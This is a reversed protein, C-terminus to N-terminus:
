RSFIVDITFVHVAMSLKDIMHFHDNKSLIFRM